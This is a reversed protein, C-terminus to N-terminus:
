RRLEGRVDTQGCSDLSATLTAQLNMFDGSFWGAMAVTITGCGASSYAGVGAFNDGSLTVTGM